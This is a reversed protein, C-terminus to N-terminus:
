EVEGDEEADIGANEEAGKRADLMERVWEDVPVNLADALLVMQEAYIPKTGAEVGSLTGDPLRARDALEARTMGRAKRTERVLAALRQNAATIAKSKRTTM